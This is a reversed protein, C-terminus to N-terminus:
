RHCSICSSMDCFRRIRVLDTAQVTISEGDANITPADEAAAALVAALVVVLMIFEFGSSDNFAPNPHHESDFEVLKRPFLPPNLYVCRM